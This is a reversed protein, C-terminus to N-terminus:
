QTLELEQHGQSHIVDVIDQGRSRYVWAQEKSTSQEEGTVTETGESRPNENKLVKEQKM